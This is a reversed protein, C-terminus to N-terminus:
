SLQKELETIRVQAESKGLSLSLRYLELAEQRAAKKKRPAFQTRNAVTELTSAQNYYMNAVTVKNEANTDNSLKELSAIDSEKVKIVQDKMWLISDKQNLKVWLAMNDNRAEVLQLQLAVLEESRQALDAKLRRISAASAKSGAKSSKELSALKAETQQVYTNIERLRGVYDAYSSGEIMKIQLAKRSADISDILIGVENLKAESEKSVNLQYSLSDVKSQLAVNEKEKTDCSFLSIMIVIGLIYKKM